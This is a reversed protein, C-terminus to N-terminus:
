PRCGVQPEMVVVQREIPLKSRSVTLVAVPDPIPVGMEECFRRVPESDPRAESRYRMPVILTPEIANVVEVAQAPTLSPEGGVPLLLVDVAGLAEVQEQTPPRHVPGLHCVTLTEMTVCFGTVLHGEDTEPPRGPVRVGVVFVGGVEYEGPGEVLFPKIPRRGLPRGGAPWTSVTVVDADLWDPSGDAGTPPDCVVVRSEAAIRFSTTGLWTLDM